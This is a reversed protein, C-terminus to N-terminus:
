FFQGIKRLPKVWLTFFYPKLGNVVWAKRDMQNAILRNQVSANSVGGARMLVTTKPLYAATIKNKHLFRLMLEYDAASKLDLRYGGLRKYVATKVYFTPHPPMWGWLFANKQYKGAKWKRTVKGTQQADVYHLDTYVCATKEAQFTAVLDSIAGPYAYFDDANLFGAVEGTCLALGKNMADYLGKDAESVWKVRGSPQAAAYEQILTVTGDTSGGDVVIHETGAHTQAAVSRFTDAITGASNFCVTIISVRM